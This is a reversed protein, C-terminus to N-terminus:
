YIHKINLKRTLVKLNINSKKKGSFYFNFWVCFVLNFNLFELKWFDSIPEAGIGALTFDFKCRNNEMEFAGNVDKFYVSKSGM